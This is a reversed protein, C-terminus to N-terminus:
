DKYIPDKFNSLAACVTVMKDIHPVLTIPLQGSLVRFTKLRRIVQEVLIRLNAIKKTKGVAVTSMQAQGRLGPPIHLSLFRAACEDRICFGKDAQVMNYPDCQDLIGSDMTINKDSSRGGYASSVFTIAPNPAVGILVKATNHHKYQSWTLNQLKLDKPTELFIVTCDVIVRLDPLKSFRSPKSAIIQEKTPWIITQGLLKSMTTLWSHFIQSCLTPSIHFRKALDKHLSGLRLKMLTLLLEDRATLKRDPGFKKPSNHQFRRINGYLCKMGRWRRRVFPTLYDLLKKFLSRSEIGTFFNQDGDTQVTEDYLSQNTSGTRSKKMNLIDVKRKLAANQRNLHKNKLKYKRIVGLLLFIIVRLATTFPTSRSTDSDPEAGTNSNEKKQQRELWRKKRSPSGSTPVDAGPKRKKEPLPDPDEPTPGGSRFHRSCVVQDKSPDLLKHPRSPDARSLAKLWRGRAEPNRKAGPFPYLRCCVIM